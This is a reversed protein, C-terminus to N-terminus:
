PVCNFRLGCHPCACTILNFYTGVQKADPHGWRYTDRDAMAMPSAATCIRREMHGYQVDALAQVLANIEDTTM